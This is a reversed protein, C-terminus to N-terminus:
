GLPFFLFFYHPVSIPKRRLRLPVFSLSPGEDQLSILQKKIVISYLLVPNNKSMRHKAFLDRPYYAVNLLTSQISLAVINIVIDDSM